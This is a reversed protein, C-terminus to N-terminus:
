PSSPRNQAAEAQVAPQEFARASRSFMERQGQAVNLTWESLNSLTYSLLSRVEALLTESTAKWTPLASEAISNLNERRVTDDTEAAQRSYRLYETKQNIYRKKLPTIKSLFAEEFTRSLDCMPTSMELAFRSLANATFSQANALALQVDVQATPVHQRLLPLLDHSPRQLESSLTSQSRALDLLRTRHQEVSKSIGSLADRLCDLDNLAAFLEDDGEFVEPGPKLGIQQISAELSRKAQAVRPQLVVNVDNSARKVRDQIDKMWSSASM